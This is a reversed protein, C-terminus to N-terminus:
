KKFVIMYYLIYAMLPTTVFVTLAHNLIKNLGVTVCWSVGVVALFHGLIPGSNYRGDAYHDNAGNYPFTKAFHYWAVFFLIFILISNASKIFTTIRDKWTPPSWDDTLSDFDVDFEDSYSYDSDCCDNVADEIEKREVRKTAEKYVPTNNISVPISTINQTVPKQNDVQYRGVTSTYSLIGKSIDNYVKNLIQGCGDKLTVSLSNGSVVVGTIEAKSDLNIHFSTVGSKVDFM